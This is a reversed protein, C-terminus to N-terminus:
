ILGPSMLAWDCTNPNHDDVFTVTSIGGNVLRQAAILTRLYDRALVDEYACMYKLFINIIFAHSVVVVKEHERAIETLHDVARAVREKLDYLNEEDSYHWDRRHIHALIAIGAKLTAWSIYHKDFLESPRRVERFLTSLEPELGLEEGIIEASQYARTLDSTILKTAGVKKLTNAAEKIQEHGHETIPVDFGQHLHKCNYLTEGHRVFYIEM